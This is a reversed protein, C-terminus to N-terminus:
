SSPQSPMRPRKGRLLRALHRGLALGAGQLANCHINPPPRSPPSCSYSIKRCFRACVFTYSGDSAIVSLQSFMDGLQAEGFCHVFIRYVLEKGSSISPCSPSIEERFMERIWLQQERSRNAENLGRVDPWGM